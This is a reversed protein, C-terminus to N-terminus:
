QQSTNISSRMADLESLRAQKRTLEQNMDRIKENHDDLNNGAKRADKADHVSRKAQRKAKRADKVSGNTANSAKDATSNASNQADSTADNSKETYKGLDSQATNLKLNLSAIDSSVQLYEKNLAATDAITKYTQSFAPSAATMIIIAALLFKIKKM